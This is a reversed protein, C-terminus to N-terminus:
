RAHRELFRELHATFVEPQDVPILTRSDDVWVFETNEFSDERRPIAVALHEDVKESNWLCTALRPQTGSHM